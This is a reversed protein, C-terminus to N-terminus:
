GVKVFLWKPYPKCLSNYVVLDNKYLNATQVVIVRYSRFLGKQGM